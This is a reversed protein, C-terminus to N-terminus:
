DRVWEIREKVGTDDVVRKSSTPTGVYILGVVQEDDKLSLINKAQQTFCAPGTRWIGGFGLSEIGLLVQQAAAAVAMLQEFEPVKPHEQIKAYVLLVQPARLAKNLFSEKKEIPLEPVESLAHQWYLEGLQLRGEGEYIRFRWPKLAGHDAARSAADLINFWQEENPAPAEVKPSSCRQRMFDLISHSM